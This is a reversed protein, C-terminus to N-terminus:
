GSSEPKSGSLFPKLGSVAPNLLFGHKQWKEDFNAM